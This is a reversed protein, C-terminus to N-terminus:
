RVGELADLKDALAEATEISMALAISHRGTSTIDFANSDRQPLGHAVLRRYVRSARMIRDENALHESDLAM